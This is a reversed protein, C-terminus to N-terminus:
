SAKSENTEQGAAGAEEAPAPNAKEHQGLLLNQHGAIIADLVEPHALATTDGLDDYVNGAIKRLMRRIIKGSCTKPMADVFQIYEPSALAGIDRRVTDRLKKRVDDSWQVEDKVVVYAYIAEGKLAHPM